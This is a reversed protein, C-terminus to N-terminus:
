KVDVGDSASQAVNDTSNEAPEDGPRDQKKSTEDIGEDNM